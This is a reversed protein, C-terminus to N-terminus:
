SSKLMRYINVFYEFCDVQPAIDLLKKQMADPLGPFLTNGGTLIVNSLLEKRLDVDCRNISELIM